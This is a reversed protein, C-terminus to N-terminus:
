KQQLKVKLARIRGAILRLPATIRYSRSHYVNDLEGALRNRDLNADNLKMEISKVRQQVENLSTELSIVKQINADFRKVLDDFTLGFDKDFVATFESLVDNAAQKQAVISYDPSVGTLVDYLGPHNNGRLEPSEQLRVTKARYFGYYQTLFVILGPPLPRQHTPDLYFRSSAVVINEPNPMELILLGAPKLLRYAESVLIQLDEFRLHEAIHFGTIISQSEDPLMKLYAIADGKEVHLGLGGCSSLMSEDQDIGIALIGNEKLLELWEGRGCGLDLGNVEGYISQLPRVFDLYVSQRTKILERPGRHIAEFKQYFGETMNSM